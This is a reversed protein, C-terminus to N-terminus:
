LASPVSINWATRLSFTDPVALLGFIAAARRTRDPTLQSASARRAATCAATGGRRLLIVAETDADGMPRADSDMPLIVMQGARFGPPFIRAVACVLRHCCRPHLGLSRRLVRLVASSLARRASCRMHDTLQWVYDVVPLAYRVILNTRLLPRSCSPIALISNAARFMSAIAGNVDVVLQGSPAVRLQFGLYTASGAPEIVAGQVKVPPRFAVPGGPRRRVDLLSTKASNFAIHHSRGYAECVDVLQRVGSRTPAVLAIDDAYCFVSRPRGDVSCGVGCSSLRDLLQDVYVAWLSGGMLSGQRVGAALAFRDSLGKDVRVQGIGSTLASLMWAVEVPSIGRELLKDALIGPVLKDFAKSTDLLVVTVPTGRARYHRVTDLLQHACTGCSGGSKYAFQRASTDLRGKWRALLIAELLRFMMPTIAIGRYSNVNSIDLKGNKLLPLFVSTRLALPVTRSCILVNFLEALFEAAVVGGFIFHEGSLGLHDPAKGAKMKLQIAARVEDACISHFDCQLSALREEVSALAEDAAAADHPACADGFHRAFVSAIAAPDRQGELVTPQPKGTAGGRMKKVKDWFKRPQAQLGAVCEWEDRESDRRSRRCAYKYRYKASRFVHYVQGTGLAGCEKWIQRWFTCRDKLVQLEDSWWSKGACAGHRKSPIAQSAANALLSTFEQLCSDVSCGSSDLAPASLSLMGVSVLAQYRALQDADAASWNPTPAVLGTSRARESGGGRPRPVDQGSQLAFALQVPRHMSRCGPPELVSCAPDHLDACHSVAIHDLWSRRANANLYTATTVDLQAVDIFQLGCGSLAAQVDDCIRDGRVVDCNWDGAAFVLTGRPLNNVADSLQALCDLYEVLADADRAHNWPLYVTVFAMPISHVRATCGLVRTLSPTTVRRVDCVTACRLLIALGGFGRGRLEGSAVREDMASSCVCQFGCTSALNNIEFLRMPPLWTEQLVIVDASCSVLLHHVAHWNARFGECNFSILKFDAQPVSVVPHGAGPYVRPASSM